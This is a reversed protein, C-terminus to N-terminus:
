RRVAAEGSKTWAPATDASALRHATLFVLRAIRAVKDADVKRAEDDPTHYDDHLGSFFTVAPTGRRAFPFHDSERFLEEGPGRGPDALGALVALGLEPTAAAVDRILPGLTSHDYGVVGISDPDNRGLMDLNLVAVAESLDVTPNDAFWTSGLLGQEKGSTALFLIPRAPRVPLAGFATAVAVLAAVGSANDDAGNFISDGDANPEGVGLHDYHAVLLVHEGGRAADGGPLRGVVNPVPVPAEGRGEGYPWYQLYGGHDGVPELGAGHFADALWAASRELGHGPTGRGLRSDSALFRVHGAIVRALIHRRAVEEPTAVRPEVGAAGFEEWTGGVRSCAPALFLVLPLLFLGPGVAIASRMSIM